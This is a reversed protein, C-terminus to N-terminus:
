SGRPQGGVVSIFRKVLLVGNQGVFGFSDSCVGDVNQRRAVYPVFDRDSQPDHCDQKDTPDIMDDQTTLRATM